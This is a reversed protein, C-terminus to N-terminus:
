LKILTLFDRFFGRFFQDVKFPQSEFFEFRIVVGSELIAARSMGLGNIGLRPRPLAPLRLSTLFPTVKLLLANKRTKQPKYKKNCLPWNIKALLTSGTRSNKRFNM